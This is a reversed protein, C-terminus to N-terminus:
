RSAATHYFRGVRVKAWPFATFISAASPGHPASQTLYPLAFGFQIGLYGRPLVALGISLAVRARCTPYCCRSGYAHLGNTSLAQAPKRSTVVIASRFLVHQSLRWAGALLYPQTHAVLRPFIRVRLLWRSMLLTYARVTPSACPGEFANGPPTPFVVRVTPM